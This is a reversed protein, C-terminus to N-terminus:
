RVLGHAISVVRSCPVTELESCPEKGAVCSLQDFVKIRSTAGNAIVFLAGGSNSCPHSSTRGAKQIALVWTGALRM